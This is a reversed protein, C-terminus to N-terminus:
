VHVLIQSSIYVYAALAQIKNVRKRSNLPVVLLNFKTHLLFKFKAYPQVATSTALGQM